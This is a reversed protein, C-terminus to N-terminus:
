RDPTSDLVRIPWLASKVHQEKARASLAAVIGPHAAAVGTTEHPDKALIFVINPKAPAAASSSGGPACVLALPLLGLAMRITM